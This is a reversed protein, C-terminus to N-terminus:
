NFSENLSQGWSVQSKWFVYTMERWSGEPPSSGDLVELFSLKILTQIAVFIQCSKWMSWPYHRTTLVVKGQQRAVPDMKQMHCQQCPSLLVKSFDNACGARGSCTNGQLGDARSPFAKNKECTMQPNPLFSCSWFWGPVASQALSVVPRSRGDFVCSCPGKLVSILSLGLTPRFYHRSCVCIKYPPNDTWDTWLSAGAVQLLALGQFLCM